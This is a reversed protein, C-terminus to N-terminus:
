PSYEGIFNLYKNQIPASFLVTGWFSKLRVSRTPKINYKLNAKESNRARATPELGALYDNVM